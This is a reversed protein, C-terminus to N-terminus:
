LNNTDNISQDQFRRSYHLLDKNALITQSPRPPPYNKHKKWLLLQRIVPDQQQTEYLLNYNIETQESYFCNYIEPYKPVFDDLAQLSFRITNILMTQM